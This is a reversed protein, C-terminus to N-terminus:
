FLVLRDVLAALLDDEALDLRRFLLDISSELDVLVVLILVFIVLFLLFAASLNQAGVLDCLTWLTNWAKPEGGERVMGADGLEHRLPVLLRELVEDVDPDLVEAVVLWPELQQKVKRVLGLLEKVVLGQCLGVVVLLLDTREAVKHVVVGLSALDLPLGAFVEGYPDLCLLLAVLVCVLCPGYLLDDRGVREEGEELRGHGGRVLVVLIGVVVDVLLELEVILDALVDLVPDDRVGDVVEGALGELLLHATVSNLHLNMTDGKTRTRTAGM